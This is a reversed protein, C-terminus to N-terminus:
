MVVSCASPERLIRSVLPTVVKQGGVHEPLYGGYNVIGVGGALAHQQATAVLEEGVTDVDTPAQALAGLGHAGHEELEPV